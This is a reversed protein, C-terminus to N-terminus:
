NDQNLFNSLNVTGWKKINIYANTGSKRLNFDLLIYRAYLFYLKIFVHGM